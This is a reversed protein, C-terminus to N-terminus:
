RKGKCYAALKCAEELTPDLAYATEGHEIAKDWQQWEVYLRGLNFHVYADEPAMQLARQYYLEATDFRGLKRLVIGLRNYYQLSGPELEIASILHEAAEEHLGAKFFREGIDAKLDGDDPNEDTLAKFAARAADFKQDDLLDQGKALAQAKKEALLRAANEAEALAEDHLLSLLEALSDALDKESGPVYALELPYIKRLYANSNLQKFAETFLEEFESRESKMLPQGLVAVLATRLTQTASLLQGQRLLSRITSLQRRADSLQVPM